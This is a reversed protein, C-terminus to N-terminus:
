AAVAHHRLKGHPPHCKDKASVSITVDVVGEGRAAVASDPTMRQITPQNISMGSCREAIKEDNGGNNARMTTPHTKMHDPEVM